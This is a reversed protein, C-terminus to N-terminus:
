RSAAIQIMHLIKVIPRGWMKWSIVFGILCFFFVLLLLNFHFIPPGQLNYDFSIDVNIGMLQLKILLVWTLFFIMGIPLMEVCHGTNCCDHRSRFCMCECRTLHNILMRWNHVVMIHIFCQETTREHFSFADIVVQM